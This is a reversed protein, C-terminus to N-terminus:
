RGSLGGAVPKAEDPGFVHPARDMTILRASRKNTVYYWGWQLLVLLRDEFSILYRIHVFAWILWAFFGGFRFRGLDAVAENRGIVALSGHGKYRFLPPEPQATVRARICKAVYSGEQMAVPAVGPLPTGDQHAYHALDGIVFIEPHHPLSLDPGVIVRGVRDIEAGAREHLIRGLPSAKVGAAWLVVHTEMREPEADSELLVSNESIDSVRVGTRVTVGLRSLERAAKDSLEPPYNALIRDGGEVLIIRAELPDLTRFEERMSYRVLEGLAGALEVGTPGGGVILFTLLKRRRLANPEREAQEFAMLVRRRIETADEVTKLGPACAEWEDRGFYSHTSGTALVLMDYDLTGGDRLILRREEPLIDVVDALLVETNKQREVVTRLPAAIDGPSLSGSAVQYLLPQFLHFNRRDVLTVRVPAKGLAKAAYLGGFGGGVIVVHPHRVEPLLTM